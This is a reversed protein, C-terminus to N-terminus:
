LRRHSVIKRPMDAIFVFSPSVCTSKRGKEIKKRSGKLPDTNKFTDGAVSIVIIIAPLLLRLKRCM